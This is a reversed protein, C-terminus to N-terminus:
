MHAKVAQLLDAAQVTSVFAAWLADAIGDSVIGDGRSPADPWVIAAKNSDEGDKSDSAGAGAGAGAGGGAGGSAAAGSAAAGGAASASVQRRRTHPPVDVSLGEGVVKCARARQVLLWVEVDELTSGKHLKSSGDSTESEAGPAAEDGFLLVQCTLLAQRSSLSHTLLCRCGHVVLVVASM